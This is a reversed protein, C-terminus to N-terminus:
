GTRARYYISGSGSGHAEQFQSADVADRITDGANNYDEWLQLREQPTADKLKQQLDDDFRARQQVAFDAVGGALGLLTSEFAAYPELLFDPLASVAAAAGPIAAHASRYAQEKIGREEEFQEPTQPSPAKPAAPEQLPQDEIPTVEESIQSKYTPYKKLMRDVLENDDMEAYAPYKAKIKQAFESRTYQPM